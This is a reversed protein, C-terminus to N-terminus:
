RVLLLKKTQIWRGGEVSLRCFYLGSPLEIAHNDKGDWIAQHHGAIQYDANLLQKIEQGLTNIIKMTVRTNDVLDFRIITSSNFPNPYNQWLVFENPSNKLSKEAVAGSIVPIATAAIDWDADNWFESIIWFTDNVAPTIQSMTPLASAIAFRNGVTFDPDYYQDLMRPFLEYLVYSYYTDYAGSVNSSWTLM